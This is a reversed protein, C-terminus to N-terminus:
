RNYESELRRLDNKLEEIYGAITAAMSCINVGYDKCFQSSPNARCEGEINKKYWLWLKEMDQYAELHKPEAATIVEANDGFLIIPKTDTDKFLQNFGDFYIDAEEKSPLEKVKIVMVKKNM